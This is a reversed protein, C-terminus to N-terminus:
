KLSVGETEKLFLTAILTLIFFMSIFAVTFNFSSSALISGIVIPAISNAVRQSVVGVATGNGRNRTDYVEGLWTNWVGWAGLSFFSLTFNWFYLENVNTSKALAFGAIAAMFVYIVMIKKRGFKGTLYSASIYGPFMFLASIALFGLGEPTSLGKKSLLLPMWSAMAWYGWSFCFNITIQLFTTKAVAGKFLDLLNGSPSSHQKELIVKPHNFQGNCLITISQAAGDADNKEALWYPSEPVFKWIIIAWLSTFAGMGVIVRWGMPELAFTIGIAILVGVPWGSSLYVTAKGRSAVPVIEEFYPFTVVLSGVLVVGCLFRTAWLIEYSTSFASILPFIGYLALSLILTKKRGIQGMLRGWFLAGPIMGLFLASILSGVQTTSLEFEQAIAGSNYILIMMEWSEIAFAMFLCMGILLHKRNFHIKTFWEGVTHQMKDSVLNQSM